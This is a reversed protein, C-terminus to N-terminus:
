FPCKSFASVASLVCVCEGQIVCHLHVVASVKITIMGIM